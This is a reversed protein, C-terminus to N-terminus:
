SRWHLMQDAFALKPLKRGTVLGFVIDRLLEWPDAFILGKVSQDVWALRAILAECQETTLRRHAREFLPVRKPRVGRTGTARGSSIGREAQQCMTQLIVLESRLMALVRLPFEGEQELVRLVKLALKLEGALAADLLDFTSYRSSDGVVANVEEAQWVKAQDLLSLKAIEQGAALLNGEVRDRLAAMAESSLRLGAKETRAALWGPMEKLSVPWVPVHVAKQSLEKYWKSNMTRGDLRPMVLFILLDDVPLLLCASLAAFAAKDLSAKRFHLEILRHEAFLSSTSANAKLESWNFHSEVHFVHRVTVGRERATARLLDLAEHVLFIEDGTVLWCGALPKNQLHRALNQLQLQM